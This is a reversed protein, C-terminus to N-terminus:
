YHINIINNLHQKIYIIHANINYPIFFFCVFLYYIKDTHFLFLLFTTNKFYVYLDNIKKNKKESPMENNTKKKRNIVM